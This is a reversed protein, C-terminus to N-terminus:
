LKIGDRRIQRIVDKYQRNFNDRYRFMVNDVIRPSTLYKTCEPFIVSNCSEKYHNLQVDSFPFFYQKMVSPRLVHLAYHNFVTLVNNTSLFSKCNEEKKSMVVTRQNERLFFSSDMRYKDKTFFYVNQVMLSSYNSLNKVLDRWTHVTKPVILEDIDIPVIYKSNLNKYFCTNYAVVEYRRRQWTKELLTKTSTHNPSYVQSFQELNILDPYRSKYWELVQRTKKTVNEVFLYFYEAGLIKSIEIWQILHKTMNNKFNLPKVCLTFTKPKKKKTKSIKHFSNSLECPAASLSIANPPSYTELFPLRCSILTPNYYTNNDYMDWKEYWIRIVTAKIVQVQGDKMLIQCYITENWLGKVVAVIRVYNYPKLRQDLTVSSVYVEINEVKKWFGKSQENITANGFLKQNCFYQEGDLDLQKKFSYAVVKQVVVDSGWCCCCDCFM